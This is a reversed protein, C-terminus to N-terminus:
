TAPSLVDVCGGAAPCARPFPDVDLVTLTVGAYEGPLHTMARDADAPISVVLSALPTGNAAHAAVLVELPTGATAPDRVFSVVVGPHQAPREEAPKNALPDIV